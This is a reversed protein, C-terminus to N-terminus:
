PDGACHICNAAGHHELAKELEAIRANAAALDSIIRGLVDSPGEGSRVGCASLMIGIQQIDGKKASWKVALLDDRERELRTALAALADIAEQAVEMDVCGFCGEGADCDEPRPDASTGILAEHAAKTLREIETESM